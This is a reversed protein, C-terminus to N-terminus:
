SVPRWQQLGRPDDGSRSDKDPQEVLPSGRDDIVDVAAFAQAVIIERIARTEEGIDVRLQQDILDNLFDGALRDTEGARGSKAILTVEISGAQPPSLYVFCHDTVRYCARFLAPLRYVALPLSIRLAGDEFRQSVGPPLSNLPLSSEPSDAADTM